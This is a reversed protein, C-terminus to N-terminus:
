ASRRPYQLRAPLRSAPPYPSPRGPWSGFGDELILRQANGIEFEGVRLDSKRGRVQWNMRLKGVQGPFRQTPKRSVFALM